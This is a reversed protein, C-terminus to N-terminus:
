AAASTGLGCAARTMQGFTLIKLFVALLVPGAFGLFPSIDHYGRPWSVPWPWFGRKVLTNILYAYGLASATVSALAVGASGYRPCLMCDLMVNVALGILTVM